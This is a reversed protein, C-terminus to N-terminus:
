LKPVIIEEDIGKFIRRTCTNIVGYSHTDNEGGFLYDCVKEFNERSLPSLETFTFELQSRGLDFFLVNSVLERLIKPLQKLNQQLLWVSTKLHRIKTIIKALTKQIHKDKLMAGMDDIILISKYGEKSEDKMREYIGELIEVSIEGFLQDPPINKGLFDGDISMRSGEPIIFYITHFCKRFVNKLLSVVTSSKGRGMGGAFITFNSRNFCTHIMPYDILKKSLVGDCLMKTIQIEPADLKSVSLSM